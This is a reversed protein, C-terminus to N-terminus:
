LELIDETLLKILRKRGWCWIGIKATYIDLLTLYFFHNTYDSYKIDIILYKGSSPHKKTTWPSAPGVPGRTWNIIEGVFSKANNYYKIDFLQQETM